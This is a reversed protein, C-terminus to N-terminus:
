RRHVRLVCVPVHCHVRKPQHILVALTCSITSRQCGRTAIPPTTLEEGEIANTSLPLGSSHIIWHDAVNSHYTEVLAAVSPGIIDLILVPYVGLLLLRIWLCPLCRLALSLDVFVNFM